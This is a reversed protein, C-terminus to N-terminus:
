FQSALYIGHLCSDLNLFYRLPNQNQIFVVLTIYSVLLVRQLTAFVHIWCSPFSPSTSRWCNRRSRNGRSSRTTGHKLSHSHPHEPSGDKVSAEWSELGHLNEQEPSMWLAWLQHTTWWLAQSAMTSGFVWTYNRPVARPLGPKQVCRRWVAWKRGQKVRSFLEWLCVARQPPRQLEEREMLGKWAPILVWSGGPASSLNDWPVARHLKWTLWKSNIFAFLSPRQSLSFQFVQQEERLHAVTLHRLLGLGRRPFPASNVKAARCAAQALTLAWPPSLSPEVGKGAAERWRLTLNWGASGSHTAPCSSVSGKMPDACAEPWCPLGPCGKLGAETTATALHCPRHSPMHIGKDTLALSIGGWGRGGGGGSNRTFPVKWAQPMRMRLTAGTQYSPGGGESTPAFTVPFWVWPLSPQFSPWSSFFTVTTYIRWWQGGCAASEDMPRKAPIGEDWECLNARGQVFLFFYLLLVFM